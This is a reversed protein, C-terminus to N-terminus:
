TREVLHEELHKRCQAPTATKWYEVNRVPLYRARTGDSLAIANQNAVTKIGMKAFQKGITTTTIHAIGEPLFQLIEHSTLLDCKRCNATGPKDNRNLRLYQDPDELLDSLWSAVASQSNGIMAARARTAMAPAFPEFSGTNYQELYHKVHSAGGSDLWKFYDKYFKQPLKQTVEHIFLRRDQADVYFSDPHNATFYYNVCDPIVYEPVFKINVTMTEQTILNKINDSDSRKDSGTVEEGMVFQKNAAWGTTNGHLQKSNIVSRNEKGYIRGLTQGLMSKGTGQEIGHMVAASALKVGPHQIPYAAWSLFWDRSAPEGFFMSNLLTLFPTVDGEVADCGWGRWVNLAPIAGDDVQVIRENIGPLYTRNAVDLRYPWKLWAPAVPVQKSSPTGDEMVSLEPMFVNAAVAGTFDSPKMISNFNSLEVIRSGERVFVYQDNFAWLKRASTIPLADTLMTEFEVAATPSSILFDDLGVKVGETGADLCVMYCMAGRNRLENSLGNLAKCVAPNEKYDSDFCIYVNRRAWNIGELSPIWDIGKPGSKYSTVGGLGITYFGEKTAKAAKLEGETFIIRREPRSILDPWTNYNQPFYAVPHTGAPQNYRRPKKEKIEAVSDFGSRKPPKPPDALYRVRFYAPEDHGYWGKLANGDPGFYGFRLSPVKAFGEGLAATQTDTLESIGLNVADDASLGSSSLKDLALQSFFPSVTKSARKAM